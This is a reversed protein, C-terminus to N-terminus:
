SFKDQVANFQTDSMLATTTVGMGMLEEYEKPTFHAGEIFIDVYEAIEDEREGIANAVTRVVNIPDKQYADVLHKQIRLFAAVAVYKDLTNNIM